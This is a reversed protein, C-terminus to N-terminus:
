LKKHLSSLARAEKKKRMMRENKNQRETIGDRRIVNKRENKREDKLMEMWRGKMKRKM